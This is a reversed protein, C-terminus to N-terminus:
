KYIELIKSSILQALYKNGDPTLHLGDVFFEVRKTSENFYDAANIFAAHEQQSVERLLNYVKDYIPKFDENLLMGSGSEEYSGLLVPEEVIIVDVRNSRALRILNRFDSGLTKWFDADNFFNSITQKLSVRYIDGIEHHFIKAIKERLTMYFISKDLLFQNIKQLSITSSRYVLDSYYLNNCVNNIVVLDPKLNIIENKFLNTIEKIDSGCVGANIVEFKKSKSKDNLIHELFEPYTSGDKTKYGFTTSGGMAVIRKVGPNNKGDFKKGRFGYTNIKGYDDFKPNYKRYINPRKGYSITELEIIESDIGVAKNVGKRLMKSYDAPKEVFGYFLWYSSHFRLCYKIRQAVELSILIALTIILGIFINRLVDFQSNKNM